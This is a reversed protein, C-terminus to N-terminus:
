KLRITTRNLSFSRFIHGFHSKRLLNEIRPCGGIIARNGHYVVLLYFDVREVCSNGADTIKAGMEFILQKIVM